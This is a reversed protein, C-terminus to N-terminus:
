CWDSLTLVHEGGRERHLNSRSLTLVREDRSHCRVPRSCVARLHCEDDERGFMNMGLAKGWQVAHLCALRAWGEQM